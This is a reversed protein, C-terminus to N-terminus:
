HNLTATWNAILNLTASTPAAAPTTLLFRKGDSSVDYDILPENPSRVLNGQFLAIPTGLELASGASKVPVANIRGDAAVFFLERGDARWRPAAGGAPSISTPNQGSPFARVYVERRGSEDSTYAMWKSDPSLQGLFENAATHLFAFPQGATAGQIPLVWIDRKTQPEVQTYVLFRGDYSWQTAMKYFNNVVLSQEQGDSRKLYLDNHGLRDSSFAVADGAPSWRAMGDEFPPSTIFRQETGRALDRMWVDISGITPRTFLLRREDLSLEPNNVLGPQGLTELTRGTRDAWLFQSGRSDGGTQYLLLGTDSATVPAYDINSTKAVGGAVPIAGGTPQGSATDVAQAFLNNDRVFLLMGAALVAGTRDSLIRHSEHSDLSGLFVGSREETAAIATFAYHRGDPFFFPHKLGGDSTHTINVPAGGAAAVRQLQFEMGASPSFVIVGDRNWTGGRGFPADCITQAPGGGAAVRKLQGDSFFGIFRSDPSWFPYIGEDTGPLPQFESGDLARVWIQRRGNMQAAIAVSRGDPSLAFSHILVSEGPLTLTSRLVVAAPKPQLYNRGLAAGLVAIGAALIWAVWASLGHRPAAGAPSKAHSAWHLERCVDAASQWREGPDEALCREVIHAFPLNEPCDVAERGERRRGSSMEFLLLGLAYIDAAAGAGKGQRQEPAMYAPTGVVANAGTLTDDGESKALGFDLVKVGSKALMINAPKLDRHVIGQAHAAAMADAIQEGFQMAHQLSLKGAKLRGDLTEGAVLEMVLYNAGVDYLTCIHPHNLSSITKAERGFRDSFREQSIKVAVKRGLRTDLASFVQGMGGQGLPAEILYPGLRTGPGIAAATTETPTVTELPAATAPDGRLLAEVEPRLDHSIASLFVGREEPAISRAARALAEIQRWREHSM